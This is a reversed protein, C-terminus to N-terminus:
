QTVAPHLRNIEALKAAAQEPTEWGDFVDFARMRQYDPDNARERALENENDPDTFNNFVVTREQDPCYAREEHHCRCYASQLKM